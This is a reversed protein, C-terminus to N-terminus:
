KTRSDQATDWSGVCRRWAVHVQHKRRSGIPHSSSKSSPIAIVTVTLALSAPRTSFSPSVIQKDSIWRAAGTAQGFCRSWRCSATLGRLASRHTEMPTRTSRPISLAIYHSCHYCLNSIKGWFGRSALCLNRIPSNEDCRANGERSV